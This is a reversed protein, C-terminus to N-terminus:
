ASENWSVAALDRHLLLGRLPPKAIVSHNLKGRTYGPEHKVKKKKRQQKRRNYFFIIAMQFREINALDLPRHKHDILM